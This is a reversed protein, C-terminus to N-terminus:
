RVRVINQNSSGRFSLYPSYLDAEFQGDVVVDVFEIAETLLRDSKIQEITYGTYCWISKQTAEKIRKSLVRFALPNFLPDGGSFTVGDLLPNANIEEIISEIKANTLRKGAGPNWSLPNHCGKCCHSCGALYIAYRIGDGDVITEPYLALYNLTHKDM